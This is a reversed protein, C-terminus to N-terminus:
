DQLVEVPIAVEFTSGMTSSEILEVKVGIEMSLKKVIYLGLSHSSENGTPKASLQVGKEFLINRDRESFGPGSDTILVKVESATQYTSIKVEGGKRSFKIANTILNDLIRILQFRDVSLLHNDSINLTLNIAKNDANVRYSQTIDRLIHGLDYTESKNEGYKSPGLISNIIGSSSDNTKKILEIIELQEERLNSRDLVELLGLIRNTPSKLDHTIIDILENKEEHKKQCKLGKKQISTFILLVILLLSFFVVLNLARYTQDYRPPDFAFGNATLYSITLVFGLVISAWFITHQKKTFLINVMLLIALWFIDDSLLGGNIIVFAFVFIYFGSIVANIYDELSKFYRIMFISILSYISTAFTLVTEILTYQLAIFVIAILLHLLAVGAIGIIINKANRYVDADANHHLSVVPCNSM